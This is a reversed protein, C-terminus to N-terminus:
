PRDIIALLQFVYDTGRVGDIDVYIYTDGNPQDRLDVYEEDVDYLPDPNGPYIILDIGDEFDKIVDPAKLTNADFVFTDSGNGGYLFDKGDGGELYDDGDGGTLTNSGTNGTITNDLTNGTGHIGATGTLTLDEVNAIGALSYTLKSM